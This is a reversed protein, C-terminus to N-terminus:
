LVGAFMLGMAVGWAGVFAAVLIFFLLFAVMIAVVPFSYPDHDHRENNNEDNM